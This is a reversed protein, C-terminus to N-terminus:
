AQRFRGSEHGEGRLGHITQWVELNQRTPDEQQEQKDNYERERHKRDNLDEVLDMKAKDITWFFGAGREPRSAGEGM